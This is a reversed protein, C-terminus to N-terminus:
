PPPNEPPRKPPAPPFPRKNLYKGNAHGAQLPPFPPANAGGDSEGHNTKQYFSFDDLADIRRKGWGRQLVQLNHTRFVTFLHLEKVPFATGPKLIDNEHEIQYKSYAELGQEEFIRNEEELDFLARSSIGVVLKGNLNMAM